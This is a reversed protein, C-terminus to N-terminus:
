LDKALSLIQGAPRKSKQRGANVVWIKITLCHRLCLLDLIRHFWNVLSIKQHRAARCHATWHFWHQTHHKAQVKIVEEQQSFLESSTDGWRGMVLNTFPSGRFRQLLNKVQFHPVSSFRMLLEQLEALIDYLVADFGTPIHNRTFNNQMNVWCSLIINVFNQWREPFQPHSHKCEAWRYLHAFMQGHKWQKASHQDGCTQSFHTIM